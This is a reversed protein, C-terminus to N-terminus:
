AAKKAQNKLPKRYELPQAARLCKKLKRLGTHTQSWDLLQKLDNDEMEQRLAQCLGHSRQCQWWRREKEGLGRQSLQKSRYWELYAFTVLCAQVWSEVKVFEEFRYQALGLTSKLEKFFLEIQWRLDYLQVVRTASLSLDDTMLVKQVNVLQGSEPKETTSFVLLVEGVSHVARREKHVYYTRGKVKPGMRCRAVRRQAAFSEMSPILRVPAFQRSSFDQILSKVKARPKAGALVREPNLPVIWHFGREQCVSRINKADFATDGLVVVTANKPVRLERVLEVALQTQTQYTKNKAQCYDQTYYCRCCPIRFGSPTLLLGMVFCHCSHRAHKKNKRNGKQSRPRYNGRSFTNETKNGQQSCFTQDLIFVWTGSHHTEWRMILGAVETLVAWNKSWGTDALFRIIAARHRAETRVAAAAQSASMRGDHRIFAAALRILMALTLPAVKASTLFRKLGPLATPIIM